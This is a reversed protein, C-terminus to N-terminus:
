VHARGIEPADNVGDGTMAVIHGNSKLADVIKSKHEPNVRAFIGVKEIVKKLSDYDMNELDEGTLTDGTIGIEKGIEQATLKHDGTIMIVKIGASICKKISEKVSERPPDIMAQLGVFILNEEDKKDFEKYAFGLVRLADSAFKENVALIKSRDQSTIKRIKKNELIKTCKKILHDPAGKTLVFKMDDQKHITSMLKRESDFPIEDIRPSSKEVDEKKLELKAASVLLAIETPDGFVENGKLKADNCLLGIKLLQKLSSSGKSFKGNLDYGEGSVELITDDVFVKKITMKNYTLTGTKDSCIVTTAGLTEVSPLKRILANKKALKVVGLALTITVVAPLGEPVAAVALSVATIFMELVEKGRLLGAVFVVLCIGLIALSLVKGFHELKKQLPTLPTEATQIIDAIKGLETNMGTKTVIAKARGKTVITGAFIMNLREAVVKNHLIGLTKEVPTSEGTLAAEQTELNFEEILRSDAPIKDGTEILIIDGPVLESADLLVEEGDRIVKAKLSAMKQLAEIAKEAKFEQVFGLVANLILIAGIVIGDVYEGLFVSILTAIILVWVIVNKFQNILISFWSDKKKQKIENKGYKETRENAQQTSLGNIDSNLESFLQKIDEEYSDM